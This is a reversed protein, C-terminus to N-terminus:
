SRYSFRNELYRSGKAELKLTQGMQIYKMESLFLRSEWTKIYAMALNLTM